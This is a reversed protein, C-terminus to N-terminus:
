QPTGKQPFIIVLTFVSKIRFSVVIVSAGKLFQGSQTLKITMVSGHAPMYLIAMVSTNITTVVHLINTSLQGPKTM